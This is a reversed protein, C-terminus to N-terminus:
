GYAVTGTAGSVVFGTGLPYARSDAPVAAAAFTRRVTGDNGDLVSVADNGTVTIRATTLGLSGDSSTSTVTPATRTPVAWLPRTRAPDVAYTVGAITVLEARDTAVATIPSSATPAPSLTVTRLLSGRNPDLVSLTGRTPDLAATLADASVPVGRASPHSWKIKDPNTDSKDDAGAAPDRLLLQRGPGCYKQKDCQVAATCSQTILAGDNGLVAGLITCGRRDYTWRDYGTVPDLAYVATSTTVLVTTPLAQVAPRGNVPRGDKDLTRTWERAGTGSNLATVQDCNGNVAFIAMTVGASQTATCVTRNSRAYSWVTAGTRADRARVTHRAFTVVGGQWSPQGLAVRDSTRWIQTPSASPDGLALSPPPNAATRVRTNNTEGRTWAVVVVVALALVVVGLVAVYIARSRRMAARHRALVDASRVARPDDSAAHAGDVPGTDVSTDPPPTSM